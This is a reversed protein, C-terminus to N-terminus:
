ILVWSTFLLSPLLISVGWEWEWVLRSVYSVLWQTSLLMCVSLCVPMNLSLAWCHHRLTHLLLSYTLQFLWHNLYLAATICVCFCNCTSSVVCYFNRASLQGYPSQVSNPKEMCVTSSIVVENPQVLRSPEIHLVEVGQGVTDLSEVSGRSKDLEVSDRRIHWLM